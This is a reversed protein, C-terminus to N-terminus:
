FEGSRDTRLRELVVLAVACVLMLITSLAMAQGYNMDGPRGLLRAVAVPLTPNDPRAIFVTAGFEGLSVAFAFGAAVLLARRVMPLDVERWVRWPSAGLVAAAERLRGDVARLVPLMTRVVFPVGVLAQALPVLIWSSRLDLPPEDLAILFGFGVTVASVGLPLMLLADFGRVFRGADRRTLATAALAGIVVAIATAAVAYQLSNGIAEIPPVLFAGGDERTLARYYGFGSAGLSRQVLVALPLVLLVAIVGLVGALLAWQGAGRPRRATTAADVLRLATERRRVTWAHVALVAVVAAFQILTLVAATSLDFVQSTQRYIEVELTSFTPGGLIQVVGFSTFTFLFVMLAAAAVAPALAPLTVQRWARLRSAGLMRAAEEQRPDLQAWLGGVTRVVVAYNFFVHALLIAWVTTDLRLGWLEDFLGGRGVLALFATGVVVTPLVFPVTVVARLVQKGPFDFRAFVYAGPLAVLLTLGTSALAQWTTFWLVHRVDSQALVDGIRGLQWVGDTKLGRAVIAAVPYAFFVAFFAVPVAMLGLRAASGRM